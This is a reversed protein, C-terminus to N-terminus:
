IFQAQLDCILFSRTFDDFLYCSREILRLLYAKHSDLLTSHALVDDPALLAFRASDDISNPGCMKDNFLLRGLGSERGRCM